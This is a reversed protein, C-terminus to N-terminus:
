YISEMGTLDVDTVKVILYTDGSSYAFYNVDKLTKGKPLTSDTVYSGDKLVIVGNSLEPGGTPLFDIGLSVKDGNLYMTRGKLETKAVVYKMNEYVYKAGAEKCDPLIKKVDEASKFSQKFSDDIESIKGHRDFVSQPSNDTNAQPTPAPTTEPAPTQPTPSPAPTQTVPATPSTTTIAVTKTTADYNISIGLQESIFRVPLYTKNNYTVSKTNPINVVQGNNVAQSLGLPIELTTDQNSAIAIKYDSNYDVQIGLLNALARVPLLTSGNDNLVPDKLTVSSGNLTVKIGAPKATTTPNAKNTQTLQIAQQSLQNPSAYLTSFNSSTSFLLSTALLALTYLNRSKSSKLLSM